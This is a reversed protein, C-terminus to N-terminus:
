AVSEEKNEGNEIDKMNEPTLTGERNAVRSASIIDTAQIALDFRDTRIDFEPRVGDKRETHVIPAGDTIPEKNNVVRRIKEEITEGEYVNSVQMSSKLYKVKKYM